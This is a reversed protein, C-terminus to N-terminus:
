QRKHRLLCIMAGVTHLTTVQNTSTEIEEAISPRQFQVVHLELLTASVLERWDEPRRASCTPVHVANANTPHTNRFPQDHAPDYRM